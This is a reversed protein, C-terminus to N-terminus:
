AGAAAHRAADRRAAADRACVLGFARRLAAARDRGLTDFRLPYAGAMVLKAVREPHRRAYVSFLYTGYSEGFLTLREIGLQARVADLDDAVAASGYAGARAGLSRGCAGVAADLRDLHQALDRPFPCQLPTSRGVGRPDFLLVDHDDRLRGFLREVQKPSQSAAGPGGPNPVITGAAPRSRDRRPLLAYGVATTGLAPTARDLPVTVTGCSAGAPCAAPAASAGALPDAVLPAAAAVAAAAPP